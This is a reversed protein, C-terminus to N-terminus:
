LCASWEYCSLRWDGGEVALAATFGPCPSLAALSWRAAQPPDWHVSCLALGSDPGLAVDFQDLGRSLGDGLAKLFAEKATWWRYFAAQRRHGPLARFAEREQTSFYRGVLQEMEGLPQMAELDVGIRRSRAFGYLAAGQSHSASFQIPNGDTPHNLRPKGGFDIAFEMQGPALGTYRALLRRLVTRRAIFRRRDRPFHFRRARDREADSLMDERESAAPATQELVAFWVHVEDPALSLNAPPSPWGAAANLGTSFPAQPM